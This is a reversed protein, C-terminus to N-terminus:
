WTSPQFKNNNLIVASDGKQAIVFFGKKYAYHAIHEPIMIGAVAGLMKCDKYIPFLTKFKEMRELHEEINDQSLNSKVEVLVCSGNNVVLLDIQIALNLQSHHTKFNRMVSHIDIGREQFLRVVSPKLMEEVFKGLRSGLEGIRKNVAKIQRDIEKMRLDIEKFLHWIDELTPALDTSILTNM